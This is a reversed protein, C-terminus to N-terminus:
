DARQCFVCLSQAPHQRDIYKVAGCHKCVSQQYKDPSTQCMLNLWERANEDGGAYASNLLGWKEAESIPLPYKSALVGVATGAEPLYEIMHKLIGVASDVQNQSALKRCAAVIAQLDTGRVMSYHCKACRVPERGNMRSIVINGQCKPCKVTVGGAAHYKGGTKDPADSATNRIIGM